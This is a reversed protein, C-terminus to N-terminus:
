ANHFFADHFVAGRDVGGEVGLQGVREDLGGVGLDPEDGSDGEAEVAWVGEDREGQEAEAAM